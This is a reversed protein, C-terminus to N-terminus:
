PPADRIAPGTNLAIEAALKRGLALTYDAPTRPVMVFALPGGIVNVAFYSALSPEMTGDGQQPIAIANITYGKQVAMDRAQRVPFGDNNEGNGSIDIVKRSARGPFQELLLSAVGIASSISTAGRGRRSFGTDGRSDIVVAAQRADEQGCFRTWPLVVRVHAPSAWEFYTIAICGLHNASIARAIDPSQLAAVHGNRQLDAIDPDVSSSFDVAFVIAVDVDLAAADRIGSAQARAMFALGIYLLALTLYCRSAM